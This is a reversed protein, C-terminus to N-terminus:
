RALCAQLRNTIETVPWEENATATRRRYEV